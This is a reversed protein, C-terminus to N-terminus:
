SIYMCSAFTFNSVVWTYLISSRWSLEKKKILCLLETPQVEEYKDTKKKCNLVMVADAFEAESHPIVLSMGSSHKIYWYRSNLTHKIKHLIEELLSTEYKQFKNTISNSAQKTAHLQHPIIYSCM